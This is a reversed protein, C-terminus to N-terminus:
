GQHSLRRLSGLVSHKTGAAATSSVALPSESLVFRSGILDKERAILDKAGDLYGAYDKELQWPDCISENEPSDLDLLVEDLPVCVRKGSERRAFVTGAENWSNRPTTVLGAGWMWVDFIAFSSLLGQSKTAFNIM